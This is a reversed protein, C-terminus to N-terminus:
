KGFLIETRLGAFVIHKNNYLGENAMRTADYYLYPGILLPTKHKSFLTLYLAGNLGFQTKNFLSNDKYYYGASNFQLANTSILESLVIGAQWSLPINKVKGIQMKFTLPLEIFNFYNNYNNVANQASYFYASASTGSIIKGIKYKTRFSKFNVGLAIKAKPTINKEEFIGAIFGFGHMSNSPYYVNGQSSGGSSSNNPSPNNSYFSSNNVDLFNNGTNSLGTSFLIGTKWNNKRLIKKSRAIPSREVSTDNTKVDKNGLPSKSLADLTIKKNLSDNSANFGSKQEEIQQPNAPQTESAKDKKINTVPNGNESFTVSAEETANILSKTKFSTSLKKPQLLIEDSNQEDESETLNDNKDPSSFVSDAKPSSKYNNKEKIKNGIKKQSNEKLDTRNETVVQRGINWLWYGGPLVMCFLLLLLVLGLGRRRKKEIRAETKEWVTESPQISFEDMKQKVQKEFKNEEM